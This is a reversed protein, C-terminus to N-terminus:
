EEGQWKKWALVVKCGLCTCDGRHGYLDRALANMAASLQGNRSSEPVQPKAPTLRKAREAMCNDAMQALVDAPECTDSNALFGAMLMCWARDSHSGSEFTM